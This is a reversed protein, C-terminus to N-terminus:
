TLARVLVTSLSDTSADVPSPESFGMGRYYGVAGLNSRRIVARLMQLGRENCRRTTATMLTRGIGRGRASDTVFTAIDAWGPPLDDHYVDVAQFGLVDDSDTAVVCSLCHPGAIFWEIFAEATLHEDIATKDGEDVIRHLVGALAAADEPRAVRVVMDIIREM